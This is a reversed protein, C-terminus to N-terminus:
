RNVAKVAVSAVRAALAEPSFNNFYGKHTIKELQQLDRTEGIWESGRRFSKEERICSTAYDAQSLAHDSEICVIEIDDPLIHDAIWTTRPLHDSGAIIAVKRVGKLGDDYQLMSTIHQLNTITDVAGDEEYIAEPPVGKEEAKELMLRSVSIRPYQKYADLFKDAAVSLQQETLAEPQQEILVETPLPTDEGLVAQISGYFEEKMTDLELSVEPDSSEFTEQLRDSFAEPTFVARLRQEFESEPIHYADEGNIGIFEAMTPLAFMMPVARNHMRGTSIFKVDPNSSEAMTFVEVSTDVNANGSPTLTINREPYQVAPQLEEDRSICIVADVDAVVEQLGTRDKYEVALTGEAQQQPVFPIYTIHHNPVLKENVAAFLSAYEATAHEAPDVSSEPTTNSSLNHNM